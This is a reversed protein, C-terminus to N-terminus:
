QEGEAQSTDAAKAKRFGEALMRMMDELREVRELIKLTADAQQGIVKSQKEILAAMQIFQIPDIM